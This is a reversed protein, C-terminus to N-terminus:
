EPSSGRTRTHDSLRFARRAMVLASIRRYAEAPKRNGRPLAEDAAIIEKIEPTLSALNDAGHTFSREWEDLCAKLVDGPLINRRLLSAM